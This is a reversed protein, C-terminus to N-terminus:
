ESPEERKPVVEEKVKAADKIRQLNTRHEHVTAKLGRAFEVKEIESMRELNDPIIIGTDDDSFVGEFVQVNAGQKRVFRDLIQQPSLAQGPVTVSPSFYKEGIGEPSYNAWNVIKRKKNM